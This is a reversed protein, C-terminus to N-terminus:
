AVAEPAARRVVSHHHISENTEADAVSTRDFLHDTGGSRSSIISLNLVHLRGLKATHNKKSQWHLVYV